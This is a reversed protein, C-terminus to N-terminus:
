KRALNRECTGDSKWLEMGHIGDDAWFYLKGNYSTLERPSSGTGGAYIDKVPVTGQMTGDSRWLERGHEGDEATFFLMGNWATLVWPNSDIGGPWIDKVLVTGETTGNSKWLEFGYQPDHAVFFLTGNLNVLSSDVNVLYSSFQKVLVTGAETGDSKWLESWDRFYLTGALNCCDANGYGSLSHSGPNISKVIVTGTATGDSKWLGQGDKDEAFFLLKGNMDFLSSPYSSYPLVNLDKVMKVPSDAMIKSAIGLSSTLLFSPLIIWKWKYVIRM